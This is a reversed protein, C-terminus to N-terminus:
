DLKPLGHFARIDQVLAGFPSGPMAEGGLLWKQLAPDPESLFAEFHALAPDVLAPLMADAYRGVLWDMEKTGRHAARYSARRRRTEIDDAATM